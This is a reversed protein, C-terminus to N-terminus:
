PRLHEVLLPHYTMCIRTILIMIPALVQSQLDPTGALAEPPRSRTAVSPVDLPAISKAIAPGSYSACMPRCAARWHWSNETHCGSRARYSIALATPTSAQPPWPPVARPARSLPKRPRATSVFMRTLTQALLMDVRTDDIAAAAALARKAHATSTSTSTPDPAHESVKSLAHRQSRLMRSWMQLRLAPLPGASCGSRWFYLRCGSCSARPRSGSRPM